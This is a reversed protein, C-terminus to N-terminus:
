VLVVSSIPEFWIILNKGNVPALLILGQLCLCYLRKFRLVYWLVSGYPDEDVNKADKDLAINILQEQAEADAELIVVSEVGKLAGASGLKIKLENCM